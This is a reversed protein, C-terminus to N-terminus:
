KIGGVWRSENVGVLILCARTKEWARKNKDATRARGKPSSAMSCISSRWTEIAVTSRRWGWPRSSPNDEIPDSSESAKVGAVVVLLRELAEALVVLLSSSSVVVLREVAVRDLLLEEDSLVDVRREVESSLVVVVSDEVDEDVMDEVLSVEVVGEEVEDTGASVARAESVGAGELLLPPLSTGTAPMATPATKPAAKSPPM